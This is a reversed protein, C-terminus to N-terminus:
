ATLFNVGIEYCERKTASFENLCIEDNDTIVIQWQSKGGIVMSADSVVITM